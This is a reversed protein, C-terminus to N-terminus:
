IRRAKDELPEVAAKLIAEFDDKVLHRKRGVSRKNAKARGQTTGLVARQVEEGSTGKGGRKVGTDAGAVELKQLRAM